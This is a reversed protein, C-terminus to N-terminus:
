NQPNPHYRNASLRGPKGIVSNGPRFKSPYPLNYIVELYKIRNFLM